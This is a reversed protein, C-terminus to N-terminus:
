SRGILKIFPRKRRDTRGDTQRDCRKKYHEQCRITMFYKPTIVTSLLSTCVFPWPWLVFTLTVSTMVGSPRKRVMVGTHIRLHSCHQVVSSSAYTLHALSKWPWGDFKLTVCSLFIHTQGLNLAEPSYNWNSNVSPLSIICLAQLLM